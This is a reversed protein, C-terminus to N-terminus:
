NAKLVTVLVNDSEPLSALFYVVCDEKSITEGAVSLSDFLETM